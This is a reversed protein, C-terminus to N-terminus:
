FKAIPEDLAPCIVPALRSLRSMCSDGTKTNPPTSVEAVLPCRTVYASFHAIREERTPSAPAVKGNSTARTLWEAIGPNLTTWKGKAVKITRSTGIDQTPM